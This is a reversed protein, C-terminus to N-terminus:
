ELFQSQYLDGVTVIKENLIAEGYAETLFEIAMPNDVKYEKIERPICLPVGTGAQYIKWVFEANYFVENNLKLSNDFATGLKAIALNHMTRIADATMLDKEALQKIDYEKNDAMKMFEDFSCKSLPEKSHYVVPVNNEMFIIGVYNFKSKGNPLLSKGKTEKNKIFIVDGDQFNSQALYSNYSLVILFFLAQILKM